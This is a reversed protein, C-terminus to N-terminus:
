FRKVQEIKERCPEEMDPDVCFEASSFHEGTEPDFLGVIRDSRFIRPGERLECWGVVYAVSTRDDPETLAAIRIVRETREGAASVYEIGMRSRRGGNPLASSGPEYDVGGQPILTSEGSPTRMLWVFAVAAIALLALIGM